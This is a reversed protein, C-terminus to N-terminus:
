KLVERMEEVMEEFFQTRAEAVVDELVELLTLQGEGSLALNRAIIYLLAEGLDGKSGKVTYRPEKDKEKYMVLSCEGDSHPARDASEVTARELTELLDKEMINKNVL